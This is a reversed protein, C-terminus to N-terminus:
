KILKSVSYIRAVSTFIGLVMEFIGKIIATNDPEGNLMPLATDLVHQTIPVIEPQKLLDGAITAAGTATMVVGAHFVKSKYWKKEIGFM